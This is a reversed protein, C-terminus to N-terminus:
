SADIVEGTIPNHPTERVPEPGAQMRAMLPSFMTLQGNDDVYAAATSKPKKPNNFESQATMGIEGHKGLEYGVKITFSGKVVGGHDERHNAMHVLMEEHKELFERLFDGGDYLAFMQEIGRLAYRDHLEITSM